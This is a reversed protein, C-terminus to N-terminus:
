TKTVVLERRTAVILTADDDTRSTVPPSSLYNSLAVSLTEVQGVGASNRLPQLIKEFAPAHARREGFDLLMRELGDTFIAVEHFRYLGIAFKLQQRAGDDTVFFTQNAYTGRQPWFQTSWEGSTDSTVIAGDGIQGFASSVDDIFAFLLTAAYDRMGFGNSGAESAIIERAGDLWDVVRDRDLQRISGGAKFWAASQELLSATTLSAGMGGAKASGAGDSAIATLIRRGSTDTLIACRHSDQCPTGSAKHAAGTVSAAAYRWTM